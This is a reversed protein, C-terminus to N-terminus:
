LLKVAVSKAIEEIRKIGLGGESKTKCVDEWSMNHFKSKWIFNACM